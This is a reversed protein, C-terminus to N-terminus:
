PSSELRDSNEDRDQNIRHMMLSCMGLCNTYDGFFDWTDLRSKETEKKQGIIVFDDFRSKLEDILNDTPTLELNESM